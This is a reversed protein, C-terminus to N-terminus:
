ALLHSQLCYVMYKCHTYLVAWWLFYNAQTIKTKVVFENGVDMLLNQLSNKEKNMNLSLGIGNPM